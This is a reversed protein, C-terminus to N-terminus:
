IFRDFRLLLKGAVRRFALRNFFSAFIGNLFVHLVSTCFCFGSTVFSNTRSNKDIANVPWSFFIRGM